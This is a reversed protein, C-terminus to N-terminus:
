NAADMGERERCVNGFPKSAMKSKMNELAQEKTLSPDSLDEPAAESGSANGM